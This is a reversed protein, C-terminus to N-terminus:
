EFKRKIFWFRDNFTVGFYVRFYNEQLLNQSTVGRQGIKIGLDLTSISSVPFSFGFTAGVDTLQNGNVLMPSKEYSAGIRYTIRNLYNTFDDPQPIIEAGFGTRYGITPNGLYQRTGDNTRYDFKQYDLSTFDWGVKWRNVKSFSVGFGFNYPISLKGYQNSVTLSDIIQGRVSTSQLRTLHQANLNSGLSGIAGLSLQYNKRFLSDIHFQMGGSFNLGHFADRTYLGGNATAAPNYSYNQTVISGFLYSAKAGLSLYKNLQVGNAWYFQNLGGKGTQQYNVIQYTGNAYDQYSLNYNVNSYPTLGVSTTWRNAKVPFAVMLYNLNGNQFSQTNAGDSLTKKEFQMGGQFVTVHNNTLLAPNVNNIYWPSGNSIGIGGMGQNQALGNNLLDGIGFESFPSSAIQGKAAVAVFLFIFLLPFFERCRQM